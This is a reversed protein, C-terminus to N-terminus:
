EKKKLLPGNLIGVMFMFYEYDSQAFGTPNLMLVCGHSIIETAGGSYRKGNYAAMRDREGQDISYHASGFGDINGVESEKYWDGYNKMSVDDTGSREIRADLFENARLMVAPNEFELHHGLEHIVQRHRIHKQLDGAPIMSQGSKNNEDPFYSARSEQTGGFVTSNIMGWADKSMYRLLESSNNRVQEMEETSFKKVISRPVPPSLSESVKMKARDQEPIVVLRGVAIAADYFESRAAKYPHTQKKHDEHLSKIALKQSAEDNEYAPDSFVARIQAMQDEGQAEYSERLSDMKEKLQVSKAYASKLNKQDLEPNGVAKGIKDLQLPNNIVFNWQDSVRVLEKAYRVYQDISDQDLDGRKMENFMTTMLMRFNLGVADISRRIDRPFESQRPFAKKYSGRRFRTEGNEHTYVTGVLSAAQHLIEGDVGYSALSDPLSTNAKKVLTKSPKDDHRPDGERYYGAVISGDTRTYGQVYQSKKDPAKLKISDDENSPLYVLSELLEQFFLDDYSFSKQDRRRGLIKITKGQPLSSAFSLMDDLQDKRVLVYEGSDDGVIEVGIYDPFIQGAREAFFRYLKIRSKEKESATFYVGDPGYEQLYAGLVIAAKRMVQMAQGRGSAVFHGSDDKFAFEPVEFGPLLSSMGSDWMMAKFTRKRQPVGRRPKHSDDYVSFETHFNNGKSVWDVEDLEQPDKWNDWRSSQKTSDRKNRALRREKLRQRTAEKSQQLEADRIQKRIKTIEEVYVDVLFNSGQERQMQMQSTFFDHQEKLTSLARGTDFTSGIEKRISVFEDELLRFANEKNWPSSNLPSTRQSTSVDYGSLLLSMSWVAKVKDETNLDQTALNEKFKDWIYNLRLESGEIPLKSMRGHSASAIGLHEEFVKPWKVSNGMGRLADSVKPMVRLLFEEDTESSQMNLMQYTLRGMVDQHIDHFVHSTDSALETSLSIFDNAKNDLHNRLGGAEKIESVSERNSLRKFAEKFFPDTLNSDVVRNGGLDKMLSRYHGIYIEQIVDHPIDARGAVTTGYKEKAEPSERLDSIQNSVHWKYEDRLGMWNKRPFARTKDDYMAEILKWNESGLELMPKHADNINKIADGVQATRSITQMVGSENAWAVEYADPYSEKISDFRSPDTGSAHAQVMLKRFANWREDSIKDPAPNEVLDSAAAGTRDYGKVRTGDARVYDAVRRKKLGEVLRPKLSEHLSKRYRSDAKDFSGSNDVSKVQEPEFVIWHSEKPGIGMGTFRLAPLTDQIADYGMERFVEAAFAGYNGVDGTEPDMPYVSLEDGLEAFQNATMGGYVSLQEDIHQLIRLASDSGDWDHRLSVRSVADYFAKGQGSLEGIGSALEWEQGLMDIPFGGVGGIVKTYPEERAGYKHAVRILDYDMRESYDLPNLSDDMIERAIKAAIEISGGSEVVSDIYAKAIKENYEDVLEQDHQWEAEFRTGAKDMSGALVVPNHSVLYAEIVRANGGVLEKRATQLAFDDSLSSIDIQTPKVGSRLLFLVAEAIIENGAPPIDGYAIEDVLKIVQDSESEDIGDTVDIDLEVLATEVAGTVDQFDWAIEEHRRSIRAKLDPGEGAYNRHVDGHDTTFYHGVGFANRSNGRKDSFQDFDHTTGHYVITPEGDDDVAKSFERQSAPAGHEDVVKSGDGIEWDGFWEKFAVSRTGVQFYDLRNLEGLLVEQEPTLDDRADMLVRIYAQRTERVARKRGAEKNMLASDYAKDAKEISIASSKQVEQAAEQAVKATEGSQLRRGARIEEAAPQRQAAAEEPAAERSTEYGQVKTGDGKTYGAIWKKKIPSYLHGTFGYFFDNDLGLSKMDKNALPEVNGGMKQMAKTYSGLADQRVIAFTKLSRRSGTKGSTPLYSEMSDGHNDPETVEVGVYGPFVLASRKALFKYLGVRSPESEDASFYVYAPDHKKIASALHVVAQRMVAYAQGRGTLFTEKDSTEFSYEWGDGAVDKTAWTNIHPKTLRDPIMHTNFQKGEVVFRSSEDGLTMSSETGDWRVADVEAPDSWDEWQSARPKITAQPSDGREYGRVFTGDSKTYGQVFSKAVAM